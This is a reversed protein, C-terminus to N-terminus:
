DKKGVWDYTFDRVVLMDALLGLAKGYKVNKLHKCDGQNPRMRFADCGCTNDELDVPYSAVEHSYCPRVGKKTKIGRKTCLIVGNDYPELQYLKNFDEVSEAMEM